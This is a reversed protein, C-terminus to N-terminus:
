LRNPTCKKYPNGQFAPHQLNEGNPVNMNANYLAQSASLQRGFIGSLYFQHGLERFHPCGAPPLFDEVDYGFAVTPMVPAVTQDVNRPTGFYEADYRWSGGCSAEMWVDMRRKYSFYHPVPQGSAVKGLYDHNGAAESLNHLPLQPDDFLDVGAGSHSLFNLGMYISNTLVDSFHAVQSGDYKYPPKLSLAYPDPIAPSFGYQYLMGIDNIISSATYNLMGDLYGSVVYIFNQWVTEQPFPKQYNMSCWAVTNYVGNFRSKDIIYNVVKKSQSGDAKSTTKGEQSSTAVPQAQVVVTLADNNEILEDSLPLDVEFAYENYADLQTVGNTEAVLVNNETFLQVTFNANVGGQCKYTRSFRTDGYLYPSFYPSAVMDEIPPVANFVLYGTFTHPQHNTPSGTVSLNLGLSALYNEQNPVSLSSLYGEDLPQSPVVDVQEPGENVFSVWVYNSGSAFYSAPATITAIGTPSIDAFCGITEGSPRVVVAQVSKEVNTFYRYIDGKLDFRMVVDNTTVFEDPALNCGLYQIPTWKGEFYNQTYFTKYFEAPKDFPPMTFMYSGGNLYYSYYNPDMLQWSTQRPDYAELNTKSIIGWYGGGTNATDVTLWGPNGNAPPLLTLWRDSIAKPQPNGAGGTLGMPQPAPTNAPYDVGLDNVLFSGDELAYVKVGPDNAAPNCPLPPYWPSQLSKQLSWFTGSAPLMKDPVPPLRNLAAQLPDTDSSADAVPVTGQPLQWPIAASQAALKSTLACALACGAALRVINRVNVKM